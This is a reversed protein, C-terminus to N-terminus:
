ATPMPAIKAVLLAIERDIDELSYQRAALEARLEEETIIGLTFMAKLDSLPLQRREEQTPKPMRAAQRAQQLIIIRAADEPTYDRDMLAAEFEETTIIGLDFMARLDGLSLLKRAAAKPKPLKATETAVLIDIDTPSYARAGLETRLQEETLVGAKYASLIRGVTLTPPEEPTLTKPKPRKSFDYLEVLTLAKEQDPILQLVQFKMEEYSLIDKEYAEKVVSLRDTFLDYRHELVALTLARDIDTGVYGLSALEQRFQPELSIGERFNRVPTGRGFPRPVSVEPPAAIIRQAILSLAKSVNVTM